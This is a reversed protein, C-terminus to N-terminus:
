LESTFEGLASNHEPHYTTVERGLCIVPVKESRLLISSKYLCTLALWEETHVTHALTTAIVLIGHRGKVLKLLLLCLSRLAHFHLSVM